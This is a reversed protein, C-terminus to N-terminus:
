SFNINAGKINLNKKCIRFEEINKVYEFTYLNIMIYEGILYEKFDMLNYLKRQLKGRRKSRMLRGNKKTINRRRRYIHKWQKAM